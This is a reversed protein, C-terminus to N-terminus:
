SRKGQSYAGVVTGGMLARAFDEMSMDVRGLLKLGDRIDVRIIRQQGPGDVPSISFDCPDSM